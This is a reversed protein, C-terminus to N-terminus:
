DVAYISRSYCLCVKSHAASSIDAARRMVRIEADSKILRMSEIQSAASRIPRGKEGALISAVEEFGSGGPTPVLLDLLSSTMKTRRFRSSRNSSSSTSVNPIDCYIPFMTSSSSPSNIISRLRNTLLSIDCAQNM